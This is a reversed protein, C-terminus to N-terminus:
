PKSEKEAAGNGGFIAFKSGLFMGVRSTVSDIIWGCSLTVAPTVEALPPITIGAGLLDAGRLVGNVIPLLWGWRWPFFMFVHLLLTALWAPGFESFYGFVGVKRHNGWWWLWNFTRNLLVSVIYAILIQKVNM